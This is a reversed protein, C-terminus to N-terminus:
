LKQHFARSYHAASWSASRSRNSTNFAPPFEADTSDRPAAQVPVSAPRRWSDSVPIPPAMRNRWSESAPASPAMRSRWSETADPTPRGPAVNRRWSDLQQVTSKPAQLDLPGDGRRAVEATSDLRTILTHKPTQRTEQSWRASLQSFPFEADRDPDRQPDCIKIPGPSLQLSSSGSAQVSGVQLTCQPQASPPLSLGPLEVHENLMVKWDIWADHHQSWANCLQGLLTCRGAGQVFCKDTVVVMGKRCRTLAVNMRPESSLFGPQMTRVSSLIVYDAENGQFSDVNYVCGSPLNEAELARTIAARQPDYFTIICFELKRQHYRRAIRVVMHVEEVNEYSNGRKREEGKWVDVFAICSYDVIRHCSRLKGNYGEQLYVRGLARSPPRDCQTDLFHAQGKLHEVDFITQLDAAEAGYPRLQKPDGFFCVKTLVKSFKYFLHM